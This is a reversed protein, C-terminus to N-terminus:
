EGGMKFYNELSLRSKNQCSQIVAIFSDGHRNSECGGFLASYNLDPLFFCFDHGELCTCYFHGLKLPFFGIWCIHTRIRLATAVSSSINSSLFVFYMWSKKRM